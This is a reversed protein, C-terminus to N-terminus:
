VVSSGLSSSLQSVLLQNLQALRDEYLNRQQNLQQNAERTKKELEEDMRLQAETEQRELEVRMEEEHKRRAEELEAELRAVFM